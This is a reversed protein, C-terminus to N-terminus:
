ARVQSEQLSCCNSCVLALVHIDLCGTAVVADEAGTDEAQHQNDMRAEGVELNRGSM